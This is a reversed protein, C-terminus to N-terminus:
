EGCERVSAREIAITGHLKQRAQSSRERDAEDGIQEHGPSRSRASRAAHHARDISAAGSPTKATWCLAIAREVPAFSGSPRSRDAFPPGAITGGNARDLACLSVACPPGPFM